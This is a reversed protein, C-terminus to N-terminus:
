LKPILEEEKPVAPVILPAGGLVIRRRADAYGHAYKDLLSTERFAGNFRGDDWYLRRLWSHLLPYDHRISRLTCQMVTHYAADFRVLTTFLRVDAETLGDGFLFKRGDSLRSELRDLAAFLPTINENYAEQTAAFGVKYVGNNVDRYVWENLEDIDKRLAEPYLGGNPQNAARLHEPVVADFESGFMRLIESSENNVPQDTKKDWLLPVTFRGDYNPDAKLYLQRIKTFGPHLPDEALSGEEGSFYWGEPGMVPHFTYVDIASELGKLKRAILTRHAWPCSPSLYLVYRGAEAPFQSNPDSSVFSRFTSDPRVFKGDKSQYTIGTAM